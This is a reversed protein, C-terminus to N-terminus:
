KSTLSLFRRMESRLDPGANPDNALFRMLHQQFLGDFLGYLATSSLTSHGGSLDILRSAVRWIMEELSKDIEVVDDRFAEEFLAQARLDYWLRHMQAEDRMTSGIKDVFADMLADPTQATMTIQDFRTVCGAKYQRIACCILDIKDAFYYQFVGHSFESKQAIKRLSARAFGFEALTQLTSAALESRREDFNNARM